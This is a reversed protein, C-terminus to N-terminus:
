VLMECTSNYTVLVLRDVWDPHQQQIDRIIEPMSQALAKVQLCADLEMELLSQCGTRKQHKLFLSPM